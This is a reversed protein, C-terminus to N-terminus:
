KQQGRRRDHRHVALLHLAVLDAGLQCLARFLHLSTILSLRPFDIKLFEAIFRLGLRTCIDLIFTPSLNPERSITQTAFLTGRTTEPTTYLYLPFISSQTTSEGSKAESM